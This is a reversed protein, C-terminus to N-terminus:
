RRSVVLSVCAGEGIMPTVQRVAIGLHAASDWNRTRVFGELAAERHGVELRMQFRFRPQPSASLIM